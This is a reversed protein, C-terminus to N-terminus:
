NALSLYDYHFKLKFKFWLDKENMMKKNKRLVQNSVGLFLSDTKKGVSIRFTDTVILM